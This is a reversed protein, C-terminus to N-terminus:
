GIPGSGIFDVGDAATGNIYLDAVRVCTLVLPVTASKSLRFGKTAGNAVIWLDASNNLTPLLSITSLWRDDNANVLSQSVGTTNIKTEGVV